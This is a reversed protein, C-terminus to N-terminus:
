GGLPGSSPGWARYTMRGERWTASRSSTSEQLVPAAPSGYVRHVGGDREVETMRALQRQSRSVNGVSVNGLAAETGLGTGADWPGQEVLHPGMHGEGFIMSGLLLVGIVIPFGGEGTFERLQEVLTYLFLNGFVYTLPWAPGQPFGRGRWRRAM